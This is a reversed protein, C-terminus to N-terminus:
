SVSWRPLRRWGDVTRVAAWWPMGQQVRAAAAVVVRLEAATDVFWTALMTDSYAECAIRHRDELFAATEECGEVDVRM